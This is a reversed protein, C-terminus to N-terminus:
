RDTVYSGSHGFFGGVGGDVGFRFLWLGGRGLDELDNLIVFQVVVVLM